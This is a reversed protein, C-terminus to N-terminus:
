NNKKHEKRIRVIEDYVKQKGKQKREKRLNEGEEVEVGWESLQELIKESPKKFVDSRDLHNKIIYKIKASKDCFVICFCDLRSSRVYNSYLEYSSYVKGKKGRKKESFVIGDVRTAYQGGSSWCDKRIIELENWKYSKKRFLAIVECGDETLIVSKLTILASPLMIIICLRRLLANQRKQQDLLAELLEIQENTRSSARNIFFWLILGILLVVVSVVLSAINMVGSNVVENM